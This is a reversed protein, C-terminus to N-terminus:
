NSRTEPFSTRTIQSCHTVDLTLFARFASCVLLNFAAKTLAKCCSCSNSALIAARGSPALKSLTVTDERVFEELGEGAGVELLELELDLPPKSTVTDLDLLGLMVLGLVFM